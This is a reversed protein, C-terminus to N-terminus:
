KHMVPWKMPLAPLGFRKAHRSEPIFCVSCSGLPMGMWLFPPAGPVGPFSGTCLAVGYLARNSACGLVAGDPLHRHNRVAVLSRAGMSVRRRQSFPNRERLGDSHAAAHCRGAWAKSTHSDELFWVSLVQRFLRRFDNRSFYQSRISNSLWIKGGAARIRQNFDDDQNRVLEEDFLGIRDVIWRHHTGFALTDVWGEYGGTRFRSNGVGVPSRMAAAIAEGQPGASVTEICGGVVWADPHAKLERVAVRLFDPEVVAHGDIRTFLDGKAERIGMNMASAVARQPNELLRIRPDALALRKIIKSTGDTSMGDVVLIELQDHPYDLRCVSHLCREVFDAENRIPLIISM